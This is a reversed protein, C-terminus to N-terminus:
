TGVNIVNNHRNIFKGVKEAINMWSSNFTLEPIIIVGRRRGRVIILSIYCGYKDYNRFCFVETFADKKKWRTVVKGKTQSAERLVQTIWEM